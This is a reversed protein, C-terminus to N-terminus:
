AVSYSVQFPLKANIEFLYDPRIGFKFTFATDPKVNGISKELRSAGKEAEGTSVTSKNSALPNLWDSRNEEDWFFSNPAILTVEVQIAIFSDELLKKMKDGLMSADVISVTGGTADAVKGIEILRCNTDACRSM